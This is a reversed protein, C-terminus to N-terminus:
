SHKINQSLFFPSTLLAEEAGIRELPSYVVMMRMLDIGHQFQVDSVVNRVVHIVRKESIVNPVGSTNTTDLLNLIQEDALGMDHIDSKTPAGLLFFMRFFLDFENTAPLLPGKSDSLLEYLVLGAAFLDIKENYHTSCFLLEPARYHITGILPAFGIKKNYESQYNTASGFDILKICNNAILINQPKLDRHVIGLKHVHKLGMLIQLFVNSVDLKSKAESDLIEKLSCGFLEMVYFLRDGGEMYSFLKIIHQSPQVTKLIEIEKSNNSDRCIVEKVAVFQSKGDIKQDAKMKWVLGFAGHALCREAILEKFNNCNSHNMICVGGNTIIIPFPFAASSV